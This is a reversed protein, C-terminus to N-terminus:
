NGPVHLKGGSLADLVHQKPGDAIIRGGELVILRDVLSLLSARHTVLLLTNHPTLHALLRAKFIEESRNDLSNSPEDLLLLPPDSLLARAVAISQRQGGSLREGREGIQMDLGKPHHRAFDMVGAIEAARLMAEDDQFSASMMINERASGYFLYVDQPVYGINHRVDAPDMQKLDLGDLWISGSSPQYLGLLLKHLTSKGSGVRGIIGVREGANIRLSVEHLAGVEQEPYAFSVNRLEINGVIEQRHIFNKGKPRELPLGMINDIGRLASTVQYYRTMLAAIQSFPVMARTVLLSCAILSGVSINHLSIQYVGVVVVMVVALNQLLLSLNTILASLLKASQGQSGIETITTEWKRQTGSEGGMTKITEIGSLTEILMSQKQSTAMMVKRVRAALPQQLSLGALISIPIAVLPVVVIWGGVWWIVWLFLLAFPLDIVASVTASTMMERFGEFEQLSNALGGVSQPRVESRLGLIQEFINALLVIDVQKGAVDLFYGRMTRMAFDFCYAICLGIALVWLTEFAENPVVRDYVNMIFLPSLLAFVNILFSAILVEAYLPWVQQLVGWFWHEPKPVECDNVRDDYRFGPKVYIAYGAFRAALEAAPLIIEGGGSAPDILHWDGSEAEHSVAVTASGDNLLLVIPLAAPSIDALTKRRVRSSIGAREAARVFLDPTLRGQDLPLGATLTQASFPKKFCRTLIVLCDTLADTPLLADRPISWTEALHSTTSM